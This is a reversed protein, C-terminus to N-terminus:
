PMRPAHDIAAPAEPRVPPEIRLTAGDRVLHIMRDIGAAHGLLGAPHTEAAAVAAPLRAIVARHTHPLPVGDQTALFAIEAPRSKLAPPARRIQGAMAEVACIAGPLAPLQEREVAGCIIAHELSRPGDSLWALSGMIRAESLLVRARRADIATRLAEPPSDASVVIATASAKLVAWLALATQVSGRGFIVVDDGRRVSRAVLAHALANTRAHVDGYTLQWTPSSLALRNPHRRASHALLEPILIDRHTTM